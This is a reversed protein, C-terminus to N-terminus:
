GDDADAYKWDVVDDGWVDDFLAHWDEMTYTLQCGWDYKTFQEGWRRQLGVAVVRKIEEEELHPYRARCKVMQRREDIEYELDCLARCDNKAQGEKELRSSSLPEYGTSAHWVEANGFTLRILKTMHTRIARIVVNWNDLKPPGLHIEYLTLATINTHNSIFGLLDSVPEIYVGCLHLHTLHRLHLSRDLRIRPLRNFSLLLEKLRGERSIIELFHRLLTARAPVVFGRMNSDHRIKLRTVLRSIGPLVNEHNLRFNNISSLVLEGKYTKPDPLKLSEYCRMSLEEIGDSHPSTTEEPDLMINIRKMGESEALVQNVAAIQRMLFKLPICECDHSKCDDCFFLRMGNEDRPDFKFWYADTSTCYKKSLCFHLDFRRLYTHYNRSIIDELHRLSTPRFYLDWFAYEDDKIAQPTLLKASDIPDHGVNFTFSSFLLPSAILCIRTSTLRLASLPNGPEDKEKLKHVSAVIQLLLEDPLSLLSM